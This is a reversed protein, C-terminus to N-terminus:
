LSRFRRSWSFIELAHLASAKPLKRPRRREALSIFQIAVRAVRAGHRFIDGTLVSVGLTFALVRLDIGAQALRPIQLSPLGALLTTGWVALFLGLLGGALALMVSETLLQRLVRARGAGMSARIAMERQRGAARALLLNAANSCAIM